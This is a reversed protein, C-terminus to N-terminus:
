GVGLFSFVYVDIKQGDATTATLATGIKPNNTATATVKNATTDWYVIAGIALAGDATFEYVGPGLSLSGKRSAEIASHAIGAFTNATIEVVEGAAVASGPTHDVMIPNGHKFVAEAM